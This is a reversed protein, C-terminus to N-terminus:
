KRKVSLRGAQSLLDVLEKFKHEGPSEFITVPKKRPGEIQVFYCDNNPGFFRGAAKFDTVVADYNSLDYTADQTPIFLFKRTVNLCPQGRKGRFVRYRAYAGLWLHGCVVERDHTKVKTRMKRGTEFNYGCDVCVVADRPWEHSCSPCKRIKVLEYGSSAEPEDPVKVKGGCSPCRISNGAEDDEARLEKGCSCRVQIAM